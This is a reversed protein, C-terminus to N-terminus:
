PELEATLARIEQFLRKKVRKRLTYVSSISLKTRESIESASLGDLGFEFVEVAQGQFAQRVRDMALNAIYISWESEIIKQIDPSKEVENLSQDKGFVHLYATRTKQKRFHTLAVNRIVGSLWTRFRARSRDYTEINQTLALLVQQGLDEIDNANVGMKCLVYHIFRSYLLAFRSWEQNNNLDCIKLILSHRTQFSDHVSCIHLM